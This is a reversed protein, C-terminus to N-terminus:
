TQCEKALHSQVEICDVRSQEGAASASKFDKFNSDSQRRPRKVIVEERWAISMIERPFDNVCLNAYNFVNSQSQPRLLYVIIVHM